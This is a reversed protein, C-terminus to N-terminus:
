IRAGMPRRMGTPGAPGAALRQTFTETPSRARFTKTDCM